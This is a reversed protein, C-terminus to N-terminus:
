PKLSTKLDNVIANFNTSKNKNVIRIDEDDSFETGISILKETLPNRGKKKHLMQNDRSALLQDPAPDDM